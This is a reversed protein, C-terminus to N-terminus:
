GAPITERTEGADDVTPRDCAPCSLRVLALQAEIVFRSGAAAKSDGYRDDRSRPRQISRAGAAPRTLPMRFPALPRVAWALPDHATAFAGVFGRLAAESGFPGYGMYAWSADGAPTGSAAARWLEPVHRVHLPELAVARGAHPVRAPLPRPTPDVEPGLSQEPSPSETM